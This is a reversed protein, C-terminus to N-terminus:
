SEVASLEVASVRFRQGNDLTWTVEAGDRDTSAIPRTGIYMVSADLKAAVDQATVFPKKEPIEKVEYVPPLDIHGDPIVRHWFSWQVGPATTGTFLVHGDRSVTVKKGNM